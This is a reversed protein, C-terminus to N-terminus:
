SVRFWAKESRKLNKVMRAVFSVAATSGVGLGLASLVGAAKAVLIYGGLNGMAAAWVGLAALTGLGALGGLFAGRTDFPIEIQGVGSGGWNTTIQEYESLFEEVVAKSTDVQSRIKRELQSQLNELLKATAYKRAEESNGYNVDIFREIQEFQLQPTIDNEVFRV